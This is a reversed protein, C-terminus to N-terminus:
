VPNIKAARLVSGGEVASTMVPTRFGGALHYDGLVQEPSRLRDLSVTTVDLLAGQHVVTGQKLPPNSANFVLNV